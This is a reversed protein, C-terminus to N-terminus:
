GLLDEVWRNGTVGSPAAPETSDSMFLNAVLLKHEGSQSTHMIQEGPAFVDGSLLHPQLLPAGLSEHVLNESGPNSPLSMFVDVSDGFLNDDFVSSSNTSTDAAKQDAPSQFFVIDNSAFLDMHAGQHKTQIASRAETQSFDLIDMHDNVQLMREDAAQDSAPAAGSLTLAASFVDDAPSTFIEECSLPGFLDSSVEPGHDPLEGTFPDPGQVASPNILEPSSGSESTNVQPSLQDCSASGASLNFIGDNFIKTQVGDCEPKPPNIIEEPEQSPAEPPDAKGNRVEPNQDNGANLQEVASPEGKMESASDQSLDPPKRSTSGSEKKDNESTKAKSSQKEREVQLESTSVDSKDGEDEMEMKRIEKVEDANKGDAQRKDNKGSPVPSRTTDEAKESSSPFLNGLLGPKIDAKRAEKPETKNTKEDGGSTFLKSLPSKGTPWAGLTGKTKEAQNASSKLSNTKTDTKQSNEPDNETINKNKEVGAQEGSKHEVPNKLEPPIGSGKPMVHTAESQGHDNLVKVPSEQSKQVMKNKLMGDSVSTEMRVVSKQRSKPNPNPDTKRQSKYIPNELYVEINKKQGKRFEHSALDSNSKDSAEYSRSKTQDSSINQGGIKGGTQNSVETQSTSLRLLSSTFRTTKWGSDPDTDLRNSAPSYSMKPVAAEHKQELTKIASKVMNEKLSLHPNPATQPPDSRLEKSPIKEGRLASPTTKPREQDERIFPSSLVKVTSKIEGHHINNPQNNGPLSEFIKTKTRTEQQVSEFEADDKELPWIRKLKGQVDASSANGVETVISKPSIVSSKRSQDAMNLYSKTM